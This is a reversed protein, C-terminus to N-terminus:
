RVETYLALTKAIVTSLGFCEEARARGRAGMGHRLLPDAVLRTLADALASADRAPVLLGNDGDIVVDRCGPVDTTVIPLGAASAEILAKPLGERYSPLCAIHCSCLLGAMDTVWGLHEVIGERVWAEVQAVPISRPNEQDPAGALIFEAQIGRDRLLRAAEIFEGVGKDWLLRAALIVRPRGPAEPRPGFEKLDVGSGAIVRVNSSPIGLQRLLGADDPNQVVAVGSKLLRALGLRVAPILIRGLRGSSTFLWGMGALANVVYPVRAIRAALSGYLVPKMAVHHVIAPRERRYILILRMLAVFDSFPNLSGRANEFPILRIGARRIQEGHMRVRTVVAVEYGAARAAVALPLRHSCFYWDETVLFLLRPPADTVIAVATAVVPVDARAM